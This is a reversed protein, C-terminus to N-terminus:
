GLAAPNTSSALHWIGIVNVLGVAGSVAMVYNQGTASIVLLAANNSLTVAGAGKNVITLVQGEYGDDFDTITIAGASNFLLVKTNQVTPTTDGAIATRIDKAASHSRALEYWSSNHLIFTINDNQYLDSSDAVLMQAGSFQVEGAGKNILHVIQGEEGNDLYTLNLNGATDAYLLSYISVDPTTDGASILGDTRVQFNRFKGLALSYFRSVSM